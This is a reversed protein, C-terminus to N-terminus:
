LGFLDRVTGTAEAHWAGDVERVVAVGHAGVAVIPGRADRRADHPGDPKEPARVAAYLDERTGPDEAQWGAASRVRVTGRDGVAIAAGRGVLRAVARLTEETGSPERELRYVRPRADLRIAEPDVGLSPLPEVRVLPTCQARLDVRREIAVLRPPSAACASAFVALAALRRPPAIRTV